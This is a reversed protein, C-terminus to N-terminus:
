DRHLPGSKKGSCSERLISSGLVHQSKSARLENNLSCIRKDVRAHLVCRMKMLDDSTVREIDGHIGALIRGLQRGASAAVENLVLRVVPGRDHEELRLVACVHLFM